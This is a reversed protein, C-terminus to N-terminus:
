SQSRAAHRFNWKGALSWHIGCRAAISLYDLFNRQKADTIHLDGIHAFAVVRDTVEKKQSPKNATATTM